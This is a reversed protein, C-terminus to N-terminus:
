DFLGDIAAATNGTWCGLHPLPVEVVRAAAAAPAGPPLAALLADRVADWAPTEGGGEPVGRLTTDQVVTAGPRRHPAPEWEHPKLLGWQPVVVVRAARSLFAPWWAFSSVSLILAPATYLAALDDSVSSGGRCFGVSVGARLLPAGDAGALARLAAAMRGVLPHDLAEAILVARGLPAGGGHCGSGGGDLRAAVEALAARYFSLPLPRYAAHHGWLIDGVRVHIAVDRPGWLPAAGAASAADLGPRLWAAVEGERGAWLRTNMSYRCSPERLWAASAERWGACPEGGGDGRPRLLAAHHPADGNATDSGGGGGSAFREVATAAGAFLGGLRPAEFRVDLLSARLRAYVYQFVHNGLRDSYSARLTTARRAAEVETAALEWAARSRPSAARRPPALPAGDRLLAYCPRAVTPLWWTIRLLGYVAVGALLMLLACCLRLLARLLGSPAALLRWWAVVSAFVCLPLLVLLFRRGAVYDRVTAGLPAALKLKPDAVFM